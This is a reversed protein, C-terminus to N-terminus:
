FRKEYGRAKDFDTFKSMMEGPADDTENSKEAIFESGESEYYFNKHFSRTDGGKNLNETRKNAKM